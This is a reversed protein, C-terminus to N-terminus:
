GRSEEENGDSETNSQNAAEEIARDRQYLNYMGQFVYEQVKKRVNSPLSSKKELILNFQSILSGSNFLEKEILYDEETRKLKCGDPITINHINTYYQNIAKQVCARLEPRALYAEVSINNAPEM